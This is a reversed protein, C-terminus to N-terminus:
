IRALFSSFLKDSVTQDGSATLIQTDDQMLTWIIIFMLM